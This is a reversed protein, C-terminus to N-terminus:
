LVKTHYTMCYRCDAVMESMRIVSRKMEMGLIVFSDMKAAKSAM